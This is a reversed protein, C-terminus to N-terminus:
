HAQCSGPVTIVDNIQLASNLQNTDVFQGQGENALTRLNGIAENDSEPGFYVASVTLLSTGNAQVTTRLNQVMSIIGSNVNGSIDTPMGDSMFVVVYNQKTGTAEDQQIITKLSNFAAGYPTYGGPYFTDYLNLASTLFSANGFPVTANSQFNQRSGDFEKASTGSFYGFSYTLNTHSGYNRLFAQVTKTRYSHDPDTQITSGSNDVMFLIRLNQTTTAATCPTPAPTASQAPTASAYPTAGANPIGGVSPTSSVSPATGSSTTGSGVAAIVAAAKSEFFQKNEGFVCAQLLLPLSFM